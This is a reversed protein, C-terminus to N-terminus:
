PRGPLPFKARAEDNTIPPHLDADVPLFLRNGLSRLALGSPQEDIASTGGPVVLLGAPSRDEVSHPVVFLRTEMVALGCRGLEDLWRAPSHGPLFWAEATADLAPNYRLELRQVASGPTNRFGTPDSVASGSVSIPHCQFRLRLACNATFGPADQAYRQGEECMEHQQPQAEGGGRDGEM